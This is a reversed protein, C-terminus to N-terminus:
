QIVGIEVLRGYAVTWQWAHEASSPGSPDCTALSVVVSTHLAILVESTAADPTAAAALLIEEPTGLQQLREAVAGCDPEEDAWLQATATVLGVASAGEDTLWAVTEAFDAAPMEVDLPDGFGSDLAVAGVVSAEDTLVTGGSSEAVSSEVDVTEDTADTATEASTVPVTTTAPETTPPTTTAPATTSSPGAATEAISREGPAAGTATSAEDGGSGCASVLLALVALVVVVCRVAHGTM